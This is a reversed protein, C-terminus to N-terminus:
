SITKITDLFVRNNSCLAMHTRTSVDTYDLEQFQTWILNLIGDKSGSTTTLLLVISRRHIHSGTAPGQAHLALSSSKKKRIHLCVERRWGKRGGRKTLVRTKSVAEWYTRIMNINQKWYSNSSLNNMWKESGKSFHSFAVSDSQRHSHLPQSFGLVHHHIAPSTSALRRIVVHLTLAFQRMCSLLIRLGAFIAHLSSWASTRVRKHPKTSCPAWSDVQLDPKRRPETQPLPRCAVTAGALIWQTQTQHTGSSVEPICIEESVILLSLLIVPLLNIKFQHWYSILSHCWTLLLATPPRHHVVQIVLGAKLLHVHLLLGWKSHLQMDTSM